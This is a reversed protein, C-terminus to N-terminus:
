TGPPTWPGAWSCRRKAPVFARRPWGASRAPSASARRPWAASRAPFVRRSGSGCGRMNGIFTTRRALC